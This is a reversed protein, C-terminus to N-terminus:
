LKMELYAFRAAQFGLREYVGKGDPTAGLNLKFVETERARDILMKMLESALGRGRHVPLTFVNSIHGTRGNGGATSPPKQHYNLSATGVVKGDVLAVATVCSGDILASSFYSRLRDKYSREGEAGLSGNVETGMMLRLEVLDDIDAPGAFRFEASM